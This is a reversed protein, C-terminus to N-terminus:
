QVVRQQDFLTKDLFRRQGLGCMTGIVDLYTECDPANYFNSLRTTQHCSDGDGIPRFGRLDLMNPSAGM